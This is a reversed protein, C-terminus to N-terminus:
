LNNNSQPLSVFQNLQLWANSILIVWVVQSNLASFKGGVRGGNEWRALSFTENM